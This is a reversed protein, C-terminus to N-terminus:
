NSMEKCTMNKTARFIINGILGIIMITLFPLIYVYMNALVYNTHSREGMKILYDVVYKFIADNTMGAYLAKRVFYTHICDYLMYCEALIPLVMLICGVNRMKSFRKLMLIIIWMACIASFIPAAYECVYVSATRYNWGTLQMITYLIAVCIAYIPLCLLELFLIFPNNSFQTLEPYASTNMISNLDGLTITYSLVQMLYAAGFIPILLLAIINGVLPSAAIILWMVWKKFYRENKNIILILPSITLWALIMLIIDRILHKNESISAQSEVIQYNAM